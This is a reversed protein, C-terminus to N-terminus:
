SLLTALRPFVSLANAFTSETIVELSEHRLEAILAAYDAIDSPYSRRNERNAPAMDPCDTELVLADIPAYRVVDRLRKSGTYTVAGGVGIKWGLDIVQRAEEKSGPFAHIVGKVQPFAKIIAMVRFLARRAHVSVPLAFNQAFRMQEVFFKEQRERNPDDIYYDLGIEGVAVLRPDDINSELSQNLLDLESDDVNAVFMPHIGLGYSWGVRHACTRASEFGRSDGTTILGCQVGQARADEVWNDFDPESMLVDLHSHTDILM